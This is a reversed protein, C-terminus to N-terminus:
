YAYYSGYIGGDMGYDKGLAETDIYNTLHDPIEVVGSEMFYRGLQANENNGDYDTLDVVYEVSVPLQGSNEQIYIKVFGLPFDKAAVEDFEWLEKTLADATLNTFYSLEEGDLLISFLPANPAVDDLENSSATLPEVDEIIGDSDCNEEVYKQFDPYDAYFEAASDLNLRATLATLDFTSM